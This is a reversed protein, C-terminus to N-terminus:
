SLPGLAERVQRITTRFPQQENGLWHWDWVRSETVRQDLWARAPSSGSHVFPQSSVEPFQHLTVDISFFDYGFDDKMM